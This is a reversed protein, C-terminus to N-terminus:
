RPRLEEAQLPAFALEFVAADVIRVVTSGQAPDYAEVVYSNPPVAVTEASDAPLDPRPITGGSPYLQATLVVDRRVYRQRQEPPLTGTGPVVVYMSEFEGVGMPFSRWGFNGNHEHVIYSSGPLDFAHEFAHRNSPTVRQARVHGANRMWLPFTRPDSLAPRAPPTLMPYSPADTPLPMPLTDTVSLPGAFRSLDSGARRRRWSLFLPLVSLKLM